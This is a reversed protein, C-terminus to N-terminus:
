REIDVRLLRERKLRLELAVLRILPVVSSVYRPWLRRPDTGLRHLWELGVASMWRPARRKFGTLFELSAGICLGIGSSRDHKSLAHAIAESQPSGIALFVFDNREALLFDACKRLEIPDDKVGFPPIWARIRLQPYLARLRDVVEQHSAVLALRDGKRLLKSFVQQTLDSGTVRPLEHGLLKAIVTLPMSDCLTLWAGDYSAGLGLLAQNRVVHDVNPTVIYAFRGGARAVEIRALVSELDVCDFEVGFLYLRASASETFNSNIDPFNSLLDSM